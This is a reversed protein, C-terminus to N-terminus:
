LSEKSKLFKNKMQEILPDENRLRIDGSSRLNASLSILTSRLERIAEVAGKLINLTEQSELSQDELIQYNKDLAVIADIESSTIKRNDARAKVRERKDIEAKLRTLSVEEKQVKTKQTEYLRHYYATIGPARILYDNIHAEDIKLDDRLNRKELNGNIKIVIEMDPIDSETM